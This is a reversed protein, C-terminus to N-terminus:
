ATGKEEILIVHNVGGNEFLEFSAELFDFGRVRLREQLLVQGLIDELLGLIQLGRREAGSEEVDDLRSNFVQVRTNADVSGIGFRVGHESIEEVGDNFVVVTSEFLSVFVGGLFPAINVREAVEVRSAFVDNGSSNPATPGHLAVGEVGAQSLSLVFLHFLLNGAGEATQLTLELSGVVWESAHGFLDLLLEDIIVEEELLTVTEELSGVGASEPGSTPTDVVVFVFSEEDPAILFIVEPQDGHLHTTVESLDVPTENASDVVNFLPHGEGVVFPESEESEAGGVQSGGDASRNVDLEWLEGGVFGLKFFDSAFEVELDTTGSPLVSFGFTTDVVDGVLPTHTEGFVLSDPFHVVSDGFQDLYFLFQLCEYEESM